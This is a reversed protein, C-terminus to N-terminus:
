AAQRLPISQLNKCVFPSPLFLAGAFTDSIEMTTLESPALSLFAINPSLLVLRLLSLFGIYVFTSASDANEVRLSDKAM